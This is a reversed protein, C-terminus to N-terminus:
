FRKDYDGEEWKEIIRKGSHISGITSRPAGFLIALDVQRMKGKMDLIYQAEEDSIYMRGRTPKRGLIDFAHKNNESDTMWELNSLSNNLKNGDKHNVTRKGYPNPIYRKALEKHLLVTGSSGAVFTLYGNSAVAPKIEKYPSFVRGEETITYDDLTLKRM